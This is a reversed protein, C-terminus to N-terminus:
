SMVWFFGNGSISHVCLRLWYPMQTDNPCGFGWFDGKLTGFINQSSNKLIDIELMENNKNVETYSGHRQIHVNHKIENLLFMNTTTIQTYINHDGKFFIDGFFEWNGIKSM